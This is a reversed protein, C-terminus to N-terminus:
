DSLTLPRYGYRALRRTVAVALCLAASRDVGWRASVREALAVVGDAQPWASAAPEVVLAQVLSRALTRDIRHDEVLQQCLAQRQASGFDSDCVEDGIVLADEPDALVALDADDFQLLALSM